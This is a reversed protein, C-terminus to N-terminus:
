RLSRLPECLVDQSLLSRPSGGNKLMFVSQPISYRIQARQAMSHPPLLAVALAVGSESLTQEPPPPPQIATTERCGTKDFFDRRGNHISANGVWLVM